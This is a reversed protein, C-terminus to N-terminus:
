DEAVTFKVVNYLPDYLIANDPASAWYNTYLGRPNRIPEVQYPNRRVEFILGKDALIAITGANPDQYVEEGLDVTVNDAGTQGEVTNWGICEGLADYVPYLRGEYEGSESVSTYPVLGGFHPVEIVDIPLNLVDRNYSNRAVLLDVRDKYGARVLLKLRSIDQTSKFGLANYAGTQPGITMATLTSKVAFIFDILQQETPTDSMSVAVIQSATLPNTDNNIGANLAELKNEYKQIIYGNELGEFVGALFESFGFESVFIRKNQWEDPMTVLSQYDFNTQFFRNKAAPKRVVFPDPGAGNTLNRYAPSIPKISETSMRQIYGGWPMDYFEGFGADELRDVAHSINVLNLFYPMALTWFENLVQMGGQTIVTYGRETFLDKTGEATHSAFSPYNKRIANWLEINSIPAM